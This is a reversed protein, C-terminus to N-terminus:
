FLGHPFSGFSLRGVFPAMLGASNGASLQLGGATARKGYRPQNTPLWALPLGGVVYLGIAILFCGFYHIGPGTNSVLLGYGLVSVLGLIVCYIGRRQQSDSLKSFVVCSVAGAVYCPITLAQVEATKWNGFGKIITPLFISYGYIMVDASFQGAAFAWVKWDKLAHYVDAMHLKQASKTAGFQRKARLIMLGKEQDSLYKAHEPDNALLFWTAIGLGITPLGELILIWRWGRQGAVGDMFGICYALLGGLAGAAAITVMLYGLRLAIEHKSYFLTLYIILGPLLGSEFAGLLLRCIIFGSYNQTLGTM